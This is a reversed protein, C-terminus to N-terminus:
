ITLPREQQLIENIVFSLSSSGIYVEAWQIGFLRMKQWSIFSKVFKENPNSLESWDVLFLFFTSYMSKLQLRNKGTTNVQHM